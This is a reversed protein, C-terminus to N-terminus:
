IKLLDAARFWSRAGRKKIPKLLGNAILTRLQQESIGLKNMVHRRRLLQMPQNYTMRTM